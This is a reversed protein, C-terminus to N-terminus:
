RPSQNNNISKDVLNKAPTATHVYLHKTPLSLPIAAMVKVLFENSEDLLM